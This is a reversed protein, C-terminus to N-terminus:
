RAPAPRGQLRGVQRGGDVRLLQGTVKTASLLWVIADAIDEPTLVEALAASDKYAQRSAEYAEGLGAQLWGTEIFGPLVANVRAQPGLVRALSVTLTNLAGKSAAYAICSGQGEQGAISSVNVVSGGSARLAAECARVMQFVGITNVSYIDHFDQASLGDLRNAAVFKTTGANNVLYDIRGWRDQAARAMRRCDDDSAVNASVVFADAGAARCQAAVADAAEQSKTCNILVSAGRQALMLATAAGVGASSGTVIACKGKMDM